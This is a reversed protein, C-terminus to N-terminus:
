ERPALLPGALEPAYRGDRFWNAAVSAQLPDITTTPPSPLAKMLEPLRTERVLLATSDGDQLVVKFGLPELDIPRLPSFYLDLIVFDVPYQKLIRQWDGRMFFFDLNMQHTSEPYTVEYRGDMSVLYNPHLRWLLYGGMHYPAVLNGRMNAAALIDAERVPFLGRPASVHFSAFPLQVMAMYIALPAHLGLAVMPGAQPPLASGTSRTHISGLVRFAQSVFVELYPTVFAAATIAFFPAHRRSHLALYATIVLLALGGWHRSPVKRWGVAVLVLSLPLLIRFGNFSDSAFLPLPQWEPISPRDHALAKLQHPWYAFGWPNLLTLGLAVLGSILFRLFLRRDPLTALGILGWAGFGAVFGGHTQMWGWTMLPWVVLPWFAGRRAFEALLLTLAFGLYTFSHPRVVPWYGPLVGYAMLPAALLLALMSAGNRHGCWLAATLCGFGAIVKWLMLGSQGLVNLIFYYVLGAGWEHHITAYTPTFAFVDKTFQHGTHWVSAGAAICHWIDFDAVNGELLLVLFSFAAMLVAAGYFLRTKFDASPTDSVLRSVFPTQSVKCSGPPSACFSVFLRRRFGRPRNM